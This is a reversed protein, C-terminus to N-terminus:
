PRGRVANDQSIQEPSRALFLELARKRELEVQV